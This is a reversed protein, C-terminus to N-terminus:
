ETWCNSIQRRIEEKKRRQMEGLQRWWQVRCDEREKAGDAIDLAQGVLRTVITNIDIHNVLKIVAKIYM